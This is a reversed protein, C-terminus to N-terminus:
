DDDSEDNIHSDLTWGWHTVGNIESSEGTQLNELYWKGNSYRGVEMRSNEDDHILIQEDEPPMFDTVKIWSM